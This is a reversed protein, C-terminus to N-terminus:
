RMHQPTILNVNRIQDADGEEEAVAWVWQGTVAVVGRGLADATLRQGIQVPGGLTLPVDSAPAAYIFVDDGDAAARTEIHRTM